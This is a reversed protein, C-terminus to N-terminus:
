YDLVDFLTITCCVINLFGLTLVEQKNDLYDHKVSPHNWDQKSVYYSYNYYVLVIYFRQDIHFRYLLFM